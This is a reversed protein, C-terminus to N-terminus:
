ELVDRCWREWREVVEEVEWGGEGEEGGSFVGRPVEFCEVHRKGCDACVQRAKEDFSDLLAARGAIEILCLREWRHHNKTGQPAFKLAVGMQAAANASSSAPYSSTTCDRHRPFIGRVIPEKSPCSRRWQSLRLTPRLTRGLKLTTTTTTTMISSSHATAHSSSPVLEHVYIYGETDRESVPKVMYERLLAQTALPLTPPIWDTGVSDGWTLDDSGDGEYRVRKEGGGGTRVVCVGEQVARKAHQGCYHNAEELRGEVEEGGGEDADEGELRGRSSPPSRSPIGSPTAALCHASLTVLRTCRHNGHTMGACQVQVAQADKIKMKNSTRPKAPSRAKGSSATPTGAPASVSRGKPALKGAAAITRPPPRPRLLASPCPLDDEDSSSTSTTFSDQSPSYAASSSPSPRFPTRNPAPSNKSKPSSRAPSSSPTNAQATWTKAATALTLPPASAHAVAAPRTAHRRPLPPLPGRDSLFSRTPSYDPRLRIPSRPPSPPPPYTPTLPLPPIPPPVSAPSSFPSQTFSSSHLPVPQGTSPSLSYHQQEPIRMTAPHSPLPSVPPPSPHTPTPRLPSSTASPRPPLPPRPSAHSFPSSSPSSSTAAGSPHYPPPLAPRPPPAQAPSPSHSYAPPFPPYVDERRRRAEREPSRRQATVFASTTDNKHPTRPGGATTTRGLDLRQVGGSVGDLSITRARVRDKDRTGGRGDDYVNRPARPGFSRREGAGTAPGPGGTSWDPETALAWLPQPAPLPIDLTSHITAKPPSDRRKLLDAFAGM